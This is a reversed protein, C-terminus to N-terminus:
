SGALLVPLTWGLLGITAYVAIWFLWDTRRAYPIMGALCTALLIALLDFRERWLLFLVATVTLTRILQGLLRAPRGEPPLGALKDVLLVAIITGCTIILLALEM